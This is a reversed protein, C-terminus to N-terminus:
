LGSSSQVESSVLSTHPQLDERLPRSRLSLPMKLAWRSRNSVCSDWFEQLPTSPSSGSRTCARRWLRGRNLGLGSFEHGSRSESGVWRNSAGHHKQRLPGITNGCQYGSGFALGPISGGQTRNWAHRKLTCLHHMKQDENMVKRLSGFSGMFTHSFPRGRIVSGHLRHEQQTRGRLVM